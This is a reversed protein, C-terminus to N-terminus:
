VTHGLDLLESPKVVVAAMKNTDATVFQNM